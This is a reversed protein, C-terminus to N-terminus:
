KSAHDDVAGATPPPRQQEISPPQPPHQHPDPSRKETELQHKTTTTTTDILPRNHPSRSRTPPPSIARCSLPPATRKARESARGTTPQTTIKTYHREEIPPHETPRSQHRITSDQNYHPRHWVRKKRVIFRTLCSRSFCSAIISCGLLIQTQTM